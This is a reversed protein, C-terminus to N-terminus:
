EQLASITVEVRGQTAVPNPWGLAQCTRGRVNNRAWHEGNLYDLIYLVDSVDEKVEVLQESMFEIAGRHTLHNRWETLKDIRSFMPKLKDWHSFNASGAPKLTPVFKRLMKSIPPSQTETLLWQTDPARVSVYNKIGVELANFLTLLASRPASHILSGAERFLEHALPEESASKWLSVFNAGNAENWVVVNDGLSAHESPFNIVHHNRGRTTWYLSIHQVPSHVHSTNFFWTLQKIFRQTETTLEDLMTTSITKLEEPLHHWPLLYGKSHTGDAGILKSRGGMHPLKIRMGDYATFVGSNLRDVFNFLPESVPYSRRVKCLLGRRSGYPDDEPHSPGLTVTLARRGSRQLKIGSPQGPHFMLGVIAAVSMFKVNKIVPKM